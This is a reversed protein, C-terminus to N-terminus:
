AKAPEQMPRDNSAVAGTKEEITGKVSDETPPAIAEQSMNSFGNTHAFGGGNSYPNHFPAPQEFGTPQPVPPQHLEKPGENRASEDREDMSLVWQEWGDRRRLRDQGHECTRYEITSSQQCVLKVLELDSSLNKIRNFGAIFELSVFGQSDMHRRLYMDKLLNDLSFYYELQTTIMAFLSYQEAGYNSYAVPSMPPMMSYDYVPYGPMTAAPGNSYPPFRYPDAATVSQSRHTNRSYKGQSQSFFSNNEPNFVTPSRPGMPLSFSSQTSQHGNAFQHGNSYSSRSGRGGGRGREGRGGSFANYRGQKSHHGHPGDQHFPARREGEGAADAPQAAPARRNDSSHDKTPSGGDDRWRETAGSHDGRRGKNTRNNAFQRSGSSSHGQVSASAVGGRAHTEADSPFNESVRNNADGNVVPAEPNLTSSAALGNRKAKPTIEQLVAGESRERRPQEGNPIAGSDPCAKETHVAGNALTGTPRGSNQVGGRGGPRGGRRANAANPLPTNFVVSPTYPVKVWEHKGSSAGEKREKETKEGREQAKKRNEDIATDPTPWSEQDRNPLPALSGTPVRTDKDALRGKVGKRADAEGKADKRSSPLEERAKGKAEAGSKDQVAMESKKTSGTAPAHVGNIASAPSAKIKAKQEDARMKWINVAPPPAELLPKAPTNKGRKAKELTKETPEAAKDAPISAQSKNDWTSESSTNPISSVDDDKTVTSSSSAGLDPSSVSSTDVSRAVRALNSDSSQSRTERAQEPQNPRADTEVDEAWSRASANADHPPALSADKAPDASAAGPKSAAPPVAGGKAAQAYSFTASM